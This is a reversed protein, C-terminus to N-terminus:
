TAISVHEPNSIVRLKMELGRSLTSELEMAAISVNDAEIDDRGRKSGM